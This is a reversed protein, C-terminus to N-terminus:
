SFHIILLNEWYLNYIFECTRSLHMCKFLDQRHIILRPGLVVCKILRTAHHLAIVLNILLRNDCATVEDLGIIAQLASYNTNIPM